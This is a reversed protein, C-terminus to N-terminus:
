GLFKDKLWKYYKQWALEGAPGLNNRRVHALGGQFTIVQPRLSQRLAYKGIVSARIDDKIGTVGALNILRAM